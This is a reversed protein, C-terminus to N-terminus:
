GLSKPTPIKSTIPVITINAYIIFPANSIASYFDVNSNPIKFDTPAVGFCILISASASAAINDIIGIM